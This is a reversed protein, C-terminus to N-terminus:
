RASSELDAARVHAIFEEVKRHDKRGPGYELASCADVAYPRVRRVAEGVNEPGLGGSLIIPASGM